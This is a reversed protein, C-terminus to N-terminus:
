CFKLVRGKQLKNNQKWTNVNTYIYLFLTIWYKKGEKNKIFFDGEQLLVEFIKRKKLLEKLSYSLSEQKTKYLNM